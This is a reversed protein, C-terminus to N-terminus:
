ERGAEAAVGVRVVGTPLDWTGAVGEFPEFSWARRGAPAAHRAVDVGEQVWGISGFPLAFVFSGVLAFPFSDESQVSM